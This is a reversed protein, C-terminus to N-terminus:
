KFLIMLWNDTILSITIGLITAWAFVVPFIFRKFVSKFGFMVNLGRTIAASAWASPLLILFGNLLDMTYSNMLGVNKTVTYLLLNVPFIILNAVIYVKMVKVLLDDLTQLNKEKIFRKFFDFMPISFFLVDVFGLLATFVLALTINFYTVMLPKGGFIKSFNDMLPLLMDLLGVLIIGIFLTPKKATIKRYVKKSLLLLDFIDM